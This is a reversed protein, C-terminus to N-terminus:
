RPLFSRLIPQPILDQLLVSCDAEPRVKTANPRNATLREFAAVGPEVLLGQSALLQRGAYSLFRTAVGNAPAIWSPLLSRPM